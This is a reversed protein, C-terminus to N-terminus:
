GCGPPGISGPEAPGRYDASRLDNRRSPEPQPGALAAGASQVACLHDTRTPAARNLRTDGAVAIVERSPEDPVLDVTIHRGIPDEGPWYRKAMSQNIIIVPAGSANDHENIDRGRLLPDCHLRREARGRCGIESGAIGEGPGARSRLHTARKPQHGFPGRGPLTRRPSGTGSPSFDFTLLGHPEMGLQSNQIRVFSNIM